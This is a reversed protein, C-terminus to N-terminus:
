MDVLIQVLVPVFYQVFLFVVFGIAPTCLLLLVIYCPSPMLLSSVSVTKMKCVSYDDGDGAGSADEVIDVSVLGDDTFTSAASSSSSSSTSAPTVRGPPLATLAAAAEADLLGLHGLDQHLWPQLLHKHSAAPSAM